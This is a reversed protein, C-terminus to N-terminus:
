VRHMHRFIDESQILLLVNEDNGFQDRFEDYAQRTPDGERLYSEISVDQELLPLGHVCLLLTLLAMGAVIWWPARCVIRGGREFAAEIRDRIGM